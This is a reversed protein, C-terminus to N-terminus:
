KLNTHRLALTSFYGQEKQFTKFYLSLAECISVCGIINLLLNNLHDMFLLIMNDEGSHILSTNSNPM